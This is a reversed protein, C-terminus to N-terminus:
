TIRYVQSASCRCASDNMYQQLGIADHICHGHVGSAITLFACPTAPRKGASALPSRCCQGNWPSVTLQFDEPRLLLGQLQGQEVHRGQAAGAMPQFGPVAPPRPALHLLIQIRLGRKGVADAGRAELKEVRGSVPAPAPRSGGGCGFGEGASPPLLGEVSMLCRYSRTRRIVLM